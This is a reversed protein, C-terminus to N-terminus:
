GLKEFNRKLLGNKQPLNQEENSTIELCVWGSM